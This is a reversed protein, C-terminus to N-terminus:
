VQGYYANAGHKRLYHKDLLAQPIPELGPTAQEAIHGMMCCEELVVANHVAEAADKGWTFPGHGAILCAPLAVPDLELEAFCDVIVQGTQAEYDELEAETLMRTCPVAGYFYDAHTTGYAPLPRASQARATAWRSHTHVVGGVGEWARYLALHTATDSSPRGTGALVRGDDLAVTVLDELTLADYPVGSPKIVAVGLEYDVQSVNGWTYVVLGMRPLELNAELVQEALRRLRPETYDM